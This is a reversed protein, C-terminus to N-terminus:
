LWCRLLMPKLCIRTSVLAANNKFCSFCLWQWAKSFFHLCNVRILPFRYLLPLSSMRRHHTTSWSTIAMVSCGHEPTAVKTMFGSSALYAMCPQPPWCKKFISVLIDLPAIFAMVVFVGKLASRLVRCGIIMHGGKLFHLISKLPGILEAELRLLYM